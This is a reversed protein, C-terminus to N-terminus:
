AEEQFRYEGANLMAENKPVNTWQARSLSTYEGAREWKANRAGAVGSVLKMLHHIRHQSIHQGNDKLRAELDDIRKEAKAKREAAQERTLVSAKGSEDLEVVDSAGTSKSPEMRAAWESLAQRQEEETTEPVYNGEVEIYLEDEPSWEQTTYLPTALIGPLRTGTKSPSHDPCNAPKVGRKSERQWDHNGTQCHLTQFGNHSTVSVAVVPKHDPCNKPKVGRKSERSWMHNGRECKLRDMKVAVTAVATGKQRLEHDCHSDTGHLHRGM